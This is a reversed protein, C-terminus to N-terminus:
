WAKSTQGKLNSQNLTSGQGQNTTSLMLVDCEINPMPHRFTASSSSQHTFFLADM